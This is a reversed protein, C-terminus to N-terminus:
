IKGSMSKLNPRKENLHLVPIKHKSAIQYSILNYSSGTDITPNYHVSYLICQVRPQTSLNTDVAYVVNSGNVAGVPFPELDLGM